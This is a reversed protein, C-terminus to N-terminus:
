SSVPVTWLLMLQHFAVLAATLFVFLAFLVAFLLATLFFVLMLSVLLMM